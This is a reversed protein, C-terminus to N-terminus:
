PKRQRYWYVLVCVIWILFAVVIGRPIEEHWVREIVEPDEDPVIQLITSFLGLGIGVCIATVGSILLLATRMRGHYGGLLACPFLRGSQPPPLSVIQAPSKSM